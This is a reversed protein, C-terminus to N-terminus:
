VEKYEYMYSKGDSGISASTTYLDKVDEASLATCYIRFDSISGNFATNWSSGTYSNGISIANTIAVTKSKSSLDAEGFKEGDKYWIFKGDKSTLVLHYWTNTSLLNGSGRCYSGNYFWAPSGETNIGVWFGSSPNSYNSSVTSYGGCGSQPKVWFSVTLENPNVLPQTIKAHKPNTFNYGSDYRPSTTDAFPTGNVLSGSNVFGSSDEVELKNYGLSTYLTDSVSPGWDTPSSGEEFKAKRYCVNSVLKGGSMYLYQSDLVNTFDTITTLTVSYKHWKEDGLINVYHSDTLPKTGDGNLLNINLGFAKNSKCEFSFTYKTNTKLKKRSETPLDHCYLFWSNDLSTVNFETYDSYVTKTFESANRNINWGSDSPYTNNLLNVSIGGNNDLKYHSVLGRAIENVEKPSLCHDYLRVDNLYRASSCVVIPLSYYYTLSNCTVKGTYICKGNTYFKYEGKKYAMAFHTWTKSPFANNLGGGAIISGDTTTDNQWSWHLMNVNSYQFMSFQRNGGSTMDERGFFANCGATTGADANVYIWCCYSFADNNLIKNADKASLTLTGSNMSKAGIKGTSAFGATGTIKADGLLGQNNTNGNLPLWIQLSM